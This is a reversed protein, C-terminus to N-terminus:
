AALTHSIDIVAIDESNVGIEKMKTKGVLEGSSSYFMFSIMLQGPKRSIIFGRPKMNDLNMTFSIINGNLTNDVIWTCQM